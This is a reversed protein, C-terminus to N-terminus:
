RFTLSDNYIIEHFILENRKCLMRDIKRFRKTVAPKNMEALFRYPTMSYYAPIYAYFEKLNFISLIRIYIFENQAPIIQQAPIDFHAIGADRTWGDLCVFHFIMIKLITQLAISQGKLIEVHEFRCNNGKFCKGTNKKYFKCIRREDKPGYGMVSKMPNSTNLPEEYLIAWQEETIGDDIESETTKHIPSTMFPNTVAVVANNKNHVFTQVEISPM